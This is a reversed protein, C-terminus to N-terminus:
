SRKTSILALPSRNIHLDCVYLILTWMFVAPKGVFPFIMISMASSFIIFMRIYIPIVNSFRFFLRYFLRYCVIIYLLGKTFLEGVCGVDSTYFGMTKMIYKMYTDYYGGNFPVGYGILLTFPNKFSQNLFYTASLVRINDDNADERTQNLLESFLVDYCVYFGIILVMGIEVARM